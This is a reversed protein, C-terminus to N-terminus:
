KTEELYKIAQNLLFFSDKFQGLGTNCNSCLLGRVKGTKHSHDVAFQKKQVGADLKCIGCKNEQKNLMLKYDEVKLNFTRKLHSKRRYVADKQKQADSLRRKRAAKNVAERNNQTWLKGVAYQCKKCSPYLGSLQHKSKNFLEIAKVEKCKSCKKNLLM